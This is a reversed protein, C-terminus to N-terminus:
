EIMQFVYNSYTGLAPDAKMWIRYLCFFYFLISCFLHLALWEYFDSQLRFCRQFNLANLYRAKFYWLINVIEFWMFAEGFYTAGKPCKSFVTVSPNDCM